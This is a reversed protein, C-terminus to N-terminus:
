RIMNNCINTLWQHCETEVEHSITNLSFTAVANVHLFIVGMPFVPFHTLRKELMLNLLNTLIEASNKIHHRYSMFGSSEPKM